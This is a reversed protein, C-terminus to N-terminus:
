GRLAYYFIGPLKWPSASAEFAVLRKAVEHANKHTVFWPPKPLTHWEGHFLARPFPYFPGHVVVKQASEFLHTNHVKGIGSQIDQYSHGPYAGWPTESLLYGAGQWINLGVTGYRLRKIAQELHTGLAKITKPHAIINAGLTGHLRENCFTVAHELYAIPDESPLATQALVSAFLEEEFLPHPDNPDLNGILTRGGPEGDMAEAGPHRAARQQRQDAGPYYPHRMETQRIVDRLAEMLKPSGSWDGPLVLVQSAICNFGGNHFKQTAIHEAQFVFDKATWPGPLVVTPSVNGLESTVSKNMLPQNARKNQEGEPGSGFVIADHTKGSGTIHIEDIDPHSTLYAGVDAGGYAFHVWDAAVFDSFVKELISGLYDNVPNMKLLCVQGMAFMRYLVDLPGISAINGAGLILAVKGRTQPTKYFSGMHDNLNQSTVEPAMWVEARVGSMLLRDYLGDPYVEVIVQGDPRARVAATGFRPYRGAQIDELTRIARNLGYLMAWPGSLWEEGALPSEEPIRKAHIAARVWEAAHQATKQKLGEFYRTREALGLRAWADKAGNLKAM